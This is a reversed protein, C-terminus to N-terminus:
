RRFRWLSHHWYGGRSEQLFLEYSDPSWRWLGLGHWPRDLCGSDFYLAVVRYLLEYGTCMLLTVPCRWQLLHPVSGPGDIPQSIYQCCLSSLDTHLRDMRNECLERDQPARKRLLSPFSWIVARSILLLEERHRNRSGVQNLGRSVMLVDFTHTLHLSLGVPCENHSPIRCVCAAM